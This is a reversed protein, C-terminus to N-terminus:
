SVPCCAQTDPWVILQRLRAATGPAPGPAPPNKRQQERGDFGVQETGWTCGLLLFAGQPELGM